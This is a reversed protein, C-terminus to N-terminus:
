GGCQRLLQKMERVGQKQSTIITELIPKLEPCISYCLTNESMRIAGMHHPIMERMFNQNINNTSHANRMGSFMCETIEKYKKEYFSQEEETNYYKSCCTLIQQMDQISQTQESIINKAIEQLPIFTTYQLLNESMRIAAQHHPIMQLIFDHSISEMICVDTMEQIMHDLIHSFTAIYDNTVDSFECNPM